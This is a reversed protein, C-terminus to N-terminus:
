DYDRRDDKPPNLIYDIKVKPVPVEFEKKLKEYLKKRDKVEREKRKAKNAEMKDLKECRYKYEDDNEKRRGIVVFDVDDLEGSSDKEITTSIYGEKGANTQITQLTDILNDISGEIHYPHFVCICTEIIKRPRKKTKKSEIFSKDLKKNITLKSM